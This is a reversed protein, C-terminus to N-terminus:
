KAEGFLDQQVTGLRFLMAERREAKTKADHCERCVLQINEVTHAGGHSVAQKHDIIWAEAFKMCIACRSGFPNVNNQRCWVNFLDAATVREERLKGRTWAGNNSAGARHAFMGLPQKQYRKTRENADHWYEPGQKIRWKNRRSM